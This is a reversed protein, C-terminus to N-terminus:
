QCAAPATPAAVQRLALPGLLVQGARDRLTVVLAKGANDYEVSLAAPGGPDASGFYRGELSGVQGWLGTFALAPCGLRLAVTNSAMALVLQRGGAADAFYLGATGDAAPQLQSSGPQATAPPCDLAAAFSAGCVPAPTASWTGLDFAPLDTVTAVGVSDSTTLVAVAAGTGTGGVGPGCAALIAACAAVLLALCRPTSNM